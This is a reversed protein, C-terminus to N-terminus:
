RDSLYASKLCRYAICGYVLTVGLLAIEPNLLVSKFAPKCIFDIWFIGLGTGPM